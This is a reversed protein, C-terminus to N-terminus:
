GYFLDPSANWEKTILMPPTRKKRDRSPEPPRATRAYHPPKRPIHPSPRPATSKTLM